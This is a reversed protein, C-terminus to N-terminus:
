KGPATPKKALGRSAGYSGVSAIMGWLQEQTLGLYDSLMVLAIVMVTLIFESSKMGNSLM